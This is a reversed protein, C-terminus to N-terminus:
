GAASTVELEDELDRLLKKARRSVKSPVAVQVVVHLAGSGGGNVNPVGRGRASIVTGPQTGPRISVQHMGGGILPVDVKTGLAAEPFSITHRTILDLGDREFREHPELEVDVYLNGAPGGNPGPLGQGAVRLRHGNDIGAPFTVNVKRHKEVWGAGDCTDCGEEVVEGAGSCASCAQTFMIFGRATSVQGRGGCVQCTRMASGDKAGTGRCLDCQVPTRLDIEKKCGLVADELSLQQEVRLDRGRAPGRRRAGGGGFGGGGGFFDSFLDQFHSFIDGGFDAAGAGELGAHGYRDYRARKEDDSLVSYAETVEKFMAEAQESGKNRDPHHKLALKKYAKRIEQASATREVGLLEYYDRKESM